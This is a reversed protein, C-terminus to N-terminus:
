SSSIETSNIDIFCTVSVIHDITNVSYPFSPQAFNQQYTESRTQRSGGTALTEMEMAMAMTAATTAMETEHLKEASLSMTDKRKILSVFSIHISHHGEVVIRAEM